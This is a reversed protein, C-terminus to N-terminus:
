LWEGKKKYITYGFFTSIKGKFELKIYTLSIELVKVGKKSAAKQIEETLKEKTVAKGM